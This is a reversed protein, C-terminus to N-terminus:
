YNATLPIELGVGGGVVYIVFHYSVSNDLSLWAFM